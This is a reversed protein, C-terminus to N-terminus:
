KIVLMKRVAQFRGAQMRCYYVGAPWAGADVLAQHMGPVRRGLVPTAMIRGMTDYIQITVYSARPLIYGIRTQPNFPNPYNQLLKFTAPPPEQNREAQTPKGNLANRVFVSMKEYKGDTRALTGGFSISSASFVYGGGPHDYYIMDAGSNNPNGGKALLVVNAPSNEPDIKDMEWGSAGGGNYGLAGFIEGNEYGTGSFIWHSADRVKFYWWTNYGASSYRVGLLRSQPRGLNQWLGGKEGTQSHVSGDKRCELVTNTSDMTVKWYLGNGGLYLLNGGEDLFTKLHDIMQASWYEPHTNLILTQYNELLTSDAHVDVDSYLDYDYGNNELWALIWIEARTLHNIGSGTPAVRSNPRHYSLYKAYDNQPVYFSKGGWANYAQWTHTSALVAIRARGKIEPKVIFTVWMAKNNTDKLLASYLGTRFSDPIVIMFTPEWGCGYKWASDPIAQERGPIEPITMMTQAKAGFRQVHVAFRAASTSTMFRLTDGAAVSIKDTYGSMSASSTGQTFDIGDMDVVTEQNEDLLAAPQIGATLLILWLAALLLAFRFLSRRM